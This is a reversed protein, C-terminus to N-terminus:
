ASQLRVRMALQNLYSGVVYLFEQMADSTAQLPRQLSATNIVYLVKMGFWIQHVM